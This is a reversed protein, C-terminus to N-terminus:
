KKIEEVIGSRLELMPDFYKEESAIRSKIAIVIDEQKM